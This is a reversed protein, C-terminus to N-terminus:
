EGYDYSDEYEPLNMEVFGDDEGNYLGYCELYGSEAEQHSWSIFERPLENAAKGPLYVKFEKGEEFGYPETYHVRIDDAMESTGPEREVKLSVCKMAYEYPGTKTLNSFRGSFTCEQRSGADSDHYYGDFTGDDNITIITSWGGAGSYHWFEKGALDAFTLNENDEYEAPVPTEIFPTFPLDREAYENGFAKASQLEGNQFAYYTTNVNWNRGHAGSSYEFHKINGNEFLHFSSNYIEGLDAMNEIGAVHFVLGNKMTYIDLIGNEGSRNSRYGFLLENMGDSDLDMLYYGPVDGYLNGKVKMVGLMTSIGLDKTTIAMSDDELWATVEDIFADYDAWPGIEKKQEKTSSTTVKETKEEKAIEMEKGNEDTVQKQNVLVIGVVLVCLVLACITSICLVKKNRLIDKIRDKM